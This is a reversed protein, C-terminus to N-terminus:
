HCKDAVLLNINFGSISQHEENQFPVEGLYPASIWQQLTDIHEEIAPTSDDIINSIWGAVPVKEQIIADWTLLAHNLCGVRIGIILLIPLQLEKAVDVMTEHRNLPVKWGGIGEYFIYDVPLHRLRNLKDVLDLACIKKQSYQAAINPSAPLSFYLPNIIERPLQLSNISQYVQVDEHDENQSGGCAIPKCGLTKFGAKKFENILIKTVTTKGMGTDTATVFFGKAVESQM